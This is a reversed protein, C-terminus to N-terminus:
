KIRKYFRTGVLKYINIAGCASCRPDQKERAGRCSPLFPIEKCGESRGEFKYEWIPGSGTDVKVFEISNLDEKRKIAAKGM